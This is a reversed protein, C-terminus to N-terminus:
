LWQWRAVAWKCNFIMIMMQMLGEMIEASMESAMNQIFTM